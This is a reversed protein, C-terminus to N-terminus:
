NGTGYAYEFVREPALSLCYVHIQLLEKQLIRSDEYTCLPPADEFILCLLEDFTKFSFFLMFNCAKCFNHGKITAVNHYDFIVKNGLLELHQDVSLSLLNTSGSGM